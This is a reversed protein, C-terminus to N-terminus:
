RDIEEYPDEARLRRRVMQSLLVAFGTLIMLAGLGVVSRTAAELLERLVVSGVLLGGLAVLAGGTWKLARDRGPPRLPM